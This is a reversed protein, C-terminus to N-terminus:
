PRGLRHGAAVETECLPKHTGVGSKLDYLTRNAKLTHPYGKGASLHMTRLHIGLLQHGLPWRLSPLVTSGFHVVVTDQLSGAKHHLLTHLINYEWSFM